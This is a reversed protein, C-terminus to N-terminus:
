QRDVFNPSANEERAVPGANEFWRAATFLATPEVFIESFSYPIKGSSPILSPILGNEQGNVWYQPTFAVM